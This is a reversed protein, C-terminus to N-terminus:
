GGTLLQGAGPLSDPAGPIGIPAGAPIGALTTRPVMRVAAHQDLALLASTYNLVPHLQGNILVFRAGTEKEVAVADTATFRDGGPVLLGFVWTGGLSLVVIVLAGIAAMIPRRFPPQEPDTEGVTLASIVRQLM